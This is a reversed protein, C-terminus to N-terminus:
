RSGRNRLSDALAGFDQAVPVGRRQADEILSRARDLEGALVMNGAALRLARESRPELALFRVFAEAAASHEGMRTLALGLLFMYDASGPDRALAQRFNDCAEAYRGQMYRIRVLQGYHAATAPGLKMARECAREAQDFEGLAHHANSQLAAVDADRPSLHECIALHDLAERYRGVRLLEAALALEFDASPRVEAHRALSDILERQLLGPDRPSMTLAYLSFWNSGGDSVHGLQRLGPLDLGSGALVGCEPRLRVEIPSIFLYSSGTARGAAVLESLSGTAPMPVFKMGAFYSAHPKRAMVSAEAPGLGRLLLGAQRTEEPAQALAERVAGMGRAASGAFLVLLGVLPIFGVWATRVGQTGSGSLGRPRGLFMSVVGALYFPVLYLEFRPAHFAACLVGYGLVFHLGLARWGRAGPWRWLMGIPALVGFWLPLLDAVDRWWFTVLNLVLRTLAHPPNFRFVDLVSHFRAAVRVAFQEWDTRNGYIAYAINLYNTNTFPSGTLAANILLWTGFPLMCGAAYWGVWRRRESSASLVLLGAVPLFLYNYRTILALGALFGSIAVARSSRGGVLLYTSLVALAMAPVDTGAEIASRLFTPNLVLGVLVLLGARAGQFQGFLAFCGWAAAVAASWNLLKAALFADGPVLRVFGALLLPYGIGKTAYLEPSLRGSLLARAAPIYDGVLDTETSYLPTPHAFLAVGLV